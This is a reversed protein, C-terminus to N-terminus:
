SPRTTRSRRSSPGAGREGDTKADEWSKSALSLGAQRRCRGARREVRPLVPYGDDYDPLEALNSLYQLRWAEAQAATTFFSSPLRLTSSRRSRGEQDDAKTLPMAQALLQLGACATANSRTSWKATAGTIGGSTSARWWSATTSPTPTSSVREGGGAAAALQRRAGQGDSEVFEDFEAIRGIAAPLQRRQEPRPRGLKPDNKPNLCLERFEKYADKLKGSMLKEAKARQQPHAEAGFALNSELRGPWSWGLLFGLRGVAALITFAEHCSVQKVGRVDGPM